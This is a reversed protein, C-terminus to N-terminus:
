LVERSCIDALGRMFDECKAVQELSIFENPKHAQAIDGPGCIVSPIGALEDFLGGETGYAVRGTKSNGCLQTALAVVPAAAATELGPFSFKEDWEFGTDSDVAKMLPELTEAAYGKVEALLRLPDDTPLFRFEFEFLCDRPVINLVTGGEIKGVHATTHPIDYASDRAGEAAMRRAIGKIFAILEAAYEIANVGTPALSSHCERGHVHVRTSVNGKHGTMVQMNTPEGVMGMIPKVDMANIAEILSRAGFCGVEEDFSFALHIPTKLDAALFNPVHALAVAVFGKMDATGRGFIKQDREEVVFPDGSWEEGDVPVVDTHGSLMIGGRDKPGITAFLNAKRGDPGPIVESEVGYAALYDRIFEILDLNSNRSVTDFGVLKRILQVSVPEDTRIQNM